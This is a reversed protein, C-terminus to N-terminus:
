MGRGIRTPPYFETGSDPHAVSIRFTTTVRYESLEYQVRPEAMAAACAIFFDTASQARLNGAKEYARKMSAASESVSAWEPSNKAFDYYRWAAMEAPDVLSLDTIAQDLSLASLALRGNWPHCDVALMEIPQALQNQFAALAAAVSSSLSLTWSDYDFNQM